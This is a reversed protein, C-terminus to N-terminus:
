VGHISSRPESIQPESREASLILSLPQLYNWYTSASYISGLLSLLLLFLGSSSRVAPHEPPSVVRIAPTSTPIPLYLSQNRHLSCANLYLHRSRILSLFLCIACPGKFPVFTLRTQNSNVKSCLSRM